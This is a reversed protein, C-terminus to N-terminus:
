KLTAESFVSEHFCKFKTEALTGNAIRIVGLFEYLLENYSLWSVARGNYCVKKCLLENYSLWSVARGSYCVKKCLLENYSLWSVAHSNYCM